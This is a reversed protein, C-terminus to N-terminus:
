IDYASMNFHYRPESLKCITRPYRVVWPQGASLAQSALNPLQNTELEHWGDATKLYHHAYGLKEAEEGTLGWEKLVPDTRDLDRWVSGNPRCWFFEYNGTGIRRNTIVIDNQSLSYFRKIEGLDQAAAFNPNEKGSNARFQRWQEKVGDWDQADVLARDTLIFALKLVGNSLCEDLWIQRSGQRMFFFAM